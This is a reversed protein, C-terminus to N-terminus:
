QAGSTTSSQSPSGVCCSILCFSSSFISFSLGMEPWSWYGVMSCGPKSGGLCFCVRFNEGTIYFFLTNIISNILLNFFGYCWSYESKQAVYMSNFYWHRMSIEGYHGKDRGQTVMVGSRRRCPLSAFLLHASGAKGTSPCLSCQALYQTAAPIRSSKWKHGKSVSMSQYSILPSTRCAILIEPM